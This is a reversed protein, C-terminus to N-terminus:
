ETASPARAFTKSSLIRTLVLNDGIDINIDIDAMETPDLLPSPMLVDEDMAGLAAKLPHFSWIDDTDIVHHDQDDGGCSEDTTASTTALSGDVHDPAPLPDIWDRILPKFISTTRPLNTFPDFPFNPKLLKSEVLSKWLPPLLQKYSAIAESILDKVQTSIRGVLSQLQILIDLSVLRLVGDKRIKMLLPVFGRKSRSLWDLETTALKDKWGDCEWCLIYCVTQLGLVFLLRDTSSKAIDLSHVFSVLYKATRASHTGGLFTARTVFSGIFGMAERRAIPDSNSDHIINLLLSLFDDARQKSTSAAYFTVFQVYHPHHLKLVVNEFVELLGTYFDDDFGNALDSVVVQLLIDMKEAMAEPTLGTPNEVSNTLTLKPNCDTDMDALYLVVDNYGEVRDDTTARRM